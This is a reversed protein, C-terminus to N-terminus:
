LAVLLLEFGTTVLCGYTESQKTKPPHVLIYQSIYGSIHYIYIYIYIYPSEKDGKCLLSTQLIDNNKINEPSTRRHHLILIPCYKITEASVIWSVRNQQQRRCPTEVYKSRIKTQPHILKKKM